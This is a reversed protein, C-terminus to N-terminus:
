KYIYFRQQKNGGYAVEATQHLWVIIINNAHQQSGLSLNPNLDQGSCFNPEPKQEAQM